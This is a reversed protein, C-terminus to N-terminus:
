LQFQWSQDVNGASIQKKKKEKIYEERDWRQELLIMRGLKFPWQIM